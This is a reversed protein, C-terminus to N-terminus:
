CSHLNTGLILKTGLGPGSGCHPNKQGVAICTVSINTGGTDQFAQAREKSRQVGRAKAPHEQQLLAKLEPLGTHLLLSQSKM